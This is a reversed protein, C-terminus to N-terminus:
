RKNKLIAKKRETLENQKKKKMHKKKDTELKDKKGMEEFKFLVKKYM